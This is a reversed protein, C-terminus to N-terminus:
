VNLIPTLYLDTKTAERLNYKTPKDLTTFLDNHLISPLNNMTKFMPIVQCKVKIEDFKIWNM